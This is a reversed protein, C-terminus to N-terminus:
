SVSIKTRRFQVVDAKSRSADSTTAVQEPIRTAHVEMVSRVLQEPMAVDEALKRYRIPNGYVMEAIQRLGRPKEVPIDFMKPERMRWGRASLQQFLYTYKRENIIELDRARRVLAQISVGWRQKLRGLMDLSVPPVIELLMQKMPLLFEGAFQFAQKEIEQIPNVVPKHMVLHGLEHAMNMRLRDGVKGGALVIVPRSREHGAWLSFADRGEFTKPLALVIIGAKELANTLHPIPKDPSLGLESRTLAAAERPDDSVNTPLNLPFPKFKRQRLIAQLVGFTIQAYRYIEATERGTMTVHARFLLSGAPFDSEPQRSFFAPPFGCAVSLKEIIQESVGARDGEIKAVFPQSIGLLESVDQQTWGMLERVQRIREGYIM